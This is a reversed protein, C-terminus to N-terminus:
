AKNAGIGDAYGGARDPGLRGAVALDAYTRLDGQGTFDYPAGTADLLQVLLLDTMRRLRKPNGVEFSQIFASDAPAPSATLQRVLPEEMALGM